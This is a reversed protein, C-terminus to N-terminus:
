GSMRATYDWSVLTLPTLRLAVEEDARSLLWRALSSSTGGLYREVLLALVRGSDTPPVRATAAGRVGRYPPTDGAVEVGCRPDRRLRTVVLADQHTACWLAGGDRVFWMSQVMPGRAGSSALRVPIRAEDLFTRARAATWPGTPEPLAVDESVGQM